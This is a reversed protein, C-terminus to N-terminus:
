LALVQVLVAHHIGPPVAPDSATAERTFRVHLEDVAPNAAWEAPTLVFGTRAYSAAAAPANATVGKSLDINAVNAGEYELGIDAVWRVTKADESGAPAWALGIM